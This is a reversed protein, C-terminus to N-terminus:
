ADPTEPAPPPASPSAPAESANDLAVTHERIEADWLDRAERLPEGTEILERQLDRSMRRLQASWRGLTRLAGPLSKSGFLMLVSALVVFLELPSGVANLFAPSFASFMLKFKSLFSFHDLRLRLGSVGM